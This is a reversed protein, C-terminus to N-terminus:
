ADRHGATRQGSRFDRKAPGNESLRDIIYLDSNEVAFPPQELMRANGHRRIAIEPKMRLAIEEAVVKAARRLIDLRQENVFHDMDPLVLLANEQRQRAMRERAVIILQLRFLSKGFIADLLLGLNDAM